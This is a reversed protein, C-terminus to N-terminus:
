EDRATDSDHTVECNDSRSPQSHPHTLASWWGRDRTIGLLSSGSQGTWAITNDIWSIQPRGRNRVGKVLATMVGAEINDHQTMLHGFYRLRQSKIHSPLESETGVMKYVQETRLLETWILLKWINKNRFAQIRRKKLTWAECGQTM